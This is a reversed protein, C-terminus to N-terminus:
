QHTLYVDFRSSKGSFILDPAQATLCPALKPRKIVVRKRACLLARELVIASDEDEGVLARLVRMEIKGLASKARDPYMPDLYIVEPQRQTTLYIRNLYDIAQTITLKLKLKKSASSQILRKLGDALLAGVIPSRELMRVECGLSALIFADGGLGANADLVYPRYGPKIGVARALLQRSGGGHHGRYALEGGLFDVFIPKFTAKPVQRLEVRAPSIVLLFSEESNELRVLPLHLRLALQRAKPICEASAPAIAIKRPFM